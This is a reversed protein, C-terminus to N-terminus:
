DLMAQLAPDAVCRYSRADGKPGTGDYRASQPFPCLRRTFGPTGAPNRAGVVSDPAVGEEVWRILAWLMDRSADSGNALPKQGSGGFVDVGPGGRCHYMGPVMFMTGPVMFMRVNRSLREAGGYRRALAAWYDIAQGANTSPDQWGQYIIAKGGTQLFPDIATSDARLEPMAANAAALDATRDFGTEDWDPDGYVGDAWMARLLPSPPGPRTRVGPFLGDDMANGEADTMASVIKDLMALQPWRHM